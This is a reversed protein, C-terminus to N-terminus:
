KNMWQRPPTRLSRESYIDNPLGVNYKVKRMQTITYSHDQLNEAKMQMITPHGDINQTKMATIRRYINGKADYYEAKMPLFNQKNIQLIYHDFEVEKKDKPIAKIVYYNPTDKILSYTDANVDRGSIDEYYFTSGVFSTRKDGAAIRKVLDLAPLYLWRDDDGGPHKDVLFTTRAVDSPKSFFVFYKQEGGKKINKRLISFQRMQKNGQADVIMMRAETKGDDATYVAALNAKNIIDNATLEAQAYSFVSIGLGLITMVNKTLQM